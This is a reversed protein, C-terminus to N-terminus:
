FIRKKQICTNFGNSYRIQCTCTEICWEHISSILGLWNAYRSAPIVWVFARDAGSDRHHGAGGAVWIAFFRLSTPFRNTDYDCPMSYTFYKDPSQQVFTPLSFSDVHCSCQKKAICREKSRPNDANCHSTCDLDDRYEVTSSVTRLCKPAKGATKIYFGVSFYPFRSNGMEGLQQFFCKASKRMTKDWLSRVRWQLFGPRLGNMLARWNIASRPLRVFAPLWFRSCTKRKTRFIRLLSM